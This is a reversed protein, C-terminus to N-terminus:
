IAVTSLLAKNLASITQKVPRIRGVSLRILNGTIGCLIKDNDDLGRHSLLYPSEIIDDKGGLSAKNQIHTNVTLYNLFKKTTIVNGRIYFSVMGGCCNEGDITELQNKADELYPYSELGPYITKEVCPHTKLFWAVEFANRSHIKVRKLADRLSFRWTVWSEYPHATGGFKCFNMVEDWYAPCSRALNRSIGIAGLPFASEGEMHKTGSTVVVDAGWRLPHFLGWFFTNDCIIIPHGKTHFRVIEAIRETDPFTLTPNGAAEYIVAATDKTISKHLKVYLEPDRAFLTTVSFNYRPRSVLYKLHGYTEGYLPLIQIIHPGKLNAAAHIAATIAGMGDSRIRFSAADEFHTLWSEVRLHDPHGGNRIYIHGSNPFNCGSESEDHIIPDSVHFHPANGYKVKLYRELDRLHKGALSEYEKNKM